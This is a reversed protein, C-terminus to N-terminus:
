RFKLWERKVVQLNALAEAIAQRESHHDSSGELAHRRTLISAEAIEVLKFLTDTDATTSVAEYDRQWAFHPTPSSRSRSSFTRSFFPSSPAM